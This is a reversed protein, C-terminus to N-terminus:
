RTSSPPTPAAPSPTRATSRSTSGSWWTDCRASGPASCTAAPPPRSGCGPARAAQLLPHHLGPLRRRRRERSSAVRPGSGSRSASAAQGARAAGVGPERGPRGRAQRAPDPYYHQLVQYAAAVVAARESSGRNSRWRHRSPGTCRWRPSGSCPFASRSRRRPTPTCPASPSASGTSCCRRRRSGPHTRRALIPRLVAAAAATAASPAAALLAATLAATSLLACSRRVLHMTGGPSSTLFKRGGQYPGDGPSAM